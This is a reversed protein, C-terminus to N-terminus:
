DQQFDIEVPKAAANANKVQIQVKRLGAVRFRSLTWARSSSLVAAVTDVAGLPLPALTPGPTNTDGADDLYPQVAVSVDAAAGAANAATGVIGIVTLWESAGTYVDQNLTSGAAVSNSSVKAM